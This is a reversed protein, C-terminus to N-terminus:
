IHILSLYVTISYTGFVSVDVTQTFTYEMSSNGELPGPVTETVIEGNLEFTVDFDYQTAGGYNTITVTVPEANSLLEGSSPSIIESVGIDNPNLHTIDVTVSDNESDEDSDYTTYATLVYTTGVTSM